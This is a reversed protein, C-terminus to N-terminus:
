VARPLPFPGASAEYALALRFVAVEDYPKGVIQIGTPLGETSFGTPVAVVPCTGLMNFQHAMSYGFEPDVTVGEIQFDDAWMNQHATVAPVAMTPCIFVDFGETAASFGDNMRAIAQFVRWLADPDNRTQLMQEALRRLDASVASPNRNIADFILASTGFFAFWTTAAEEIEDSWGLDVQECFCGLKGLTEVARKANAAVDSRVKRYSLDPSWAIRMGDVGAAAMPLVPPNPLSDPDRPHPGSVVNQFLALDAVSRALPGCSNFRDLNFPPGDANRGHPPKYGVVGCASAPVRISGGMDTGTALTTMGAALAAASGGSSGGPSFEVNWPNRTTGWMPSACVGSVCFESVTTRAHIVAGAALLREVMPDSVRIINDSFAPSGFTTRQGGVGQADKVAVLLGELPRATGLLWRREAAAVSREADELYTDGFANIADNESSIRSVVADFVDRPSLEGTAFQELASTASIRALDSTVDHEM